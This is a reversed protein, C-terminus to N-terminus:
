SAKLCAEGCEKSLISEAQQLVNQPVDTEAGSAVSLVLVSCFSGFLTHVYM